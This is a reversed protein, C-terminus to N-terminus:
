KIVVKRTIVSGNSLTAREICMGSQPKEVRIGLSNFYETSVTESEIVQDIGTTSKLTVGISYIELRDESYWKKDGMQEYFFKLVNEGAPLLTLQTFLPDGLKEWYTEDVDVDNDYFCATFGNSGQMPQALQCWLGGFDWLPEEAYKSEPTGWSHGKFHFQGVMDEPVTVTFSFTSFVEAADPHQSSLNYAKGNEVTFPYDYNVEFNSFCEKGETVLSEYDPYACTTATAVATCNGTTTEITYNAVKEGPTNAIMEIPITIQELFDAETNPISYDFEVNDCTIKTVKMKSLSRNTIIIKGLKECDNDDDAIGFGLNVEPTNVEPEQEVVDEIVLELDYIAAFLETQRSQADLLNFKVFHDGPALKYTSHEPKVDAALQYIRDGYTNEDDIHITYQAIWTTNTPNNYFSKFKLTGVKGEPVNFRARLLSTGYIGSTCLKAATVTETKQVGEETMIPNGDEDFLPHAVEKVEAPYNVVTEFTFDGSKVIASYDPLAVAEGEMFVLIPDGVETEITAIGEFDGAKSPNFTITINKSSYPEVSGSFEKCFFGEGDITVVYEAAQGGSNLLTVTKEVPMNPYTKDFVVAGEGVRNVVAPDNPDEKVATFTKFRDQWGYQYQAGFYNVATITKFDPTVKFVVEGLSAGEPVLGKEDFETVAVLTAVYSNYMNVARIGADFTITGAEADYVGEMPYDHNSGGTSPDYSNFVNTFVVRTGEHFVGMEYTKSDGGNIDFSWGKMFSQAGVFYKVTDTGEWEHEIVKSAAFAPAFSAVSLAAGALLTLLKKTM